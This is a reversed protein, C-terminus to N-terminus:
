TCALPHGDMSWIFIPKSREVAIQQAKLLDLEWPISRWVATPPACLVDCQELSTEQGIGWQASGTLALCCASIVSVIRGINM